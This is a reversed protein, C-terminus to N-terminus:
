NTMRIIGDQALERDFDTYQNQVKEAQYNGVNTISGNRVGLVIKGERDYKNISTTKPCSEVITDYIESGIDTQPSIIVAEDNNRLTNILAGYLADFWNKILRYIKAVFNKLWNSAVKAWKRFQGYLHELLDLFM